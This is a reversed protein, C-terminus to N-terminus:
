SIRFGDIAVVAHVHLAVVLEVGVALAPVDVQGVGVAVLAGKVLGSAVQGAVLGMWWPVKRGPDAVSV